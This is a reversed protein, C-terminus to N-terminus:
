LVARLRGELQDLEGDGLSQWWGAGGNQGGWQGYDSTYARDLDVQGSGLAVGNRYQHLHAHVSRLGGSWAYTQWNYRGAQISANAEIVDYEGYPGTWRYGHVSAGGQVYGLVTPLQGARLQARLVATREGERGLQALAEPHGEAARAPMDQLRARLERHGLTLGGTGAVALVDFDVAMYIPVARPAGLDWAQERWSTMDTKGQGFGGLARSASIEGVLVVGLGAAQLDRAEAAKLNKAHGPTSIYRCAFRKGAFKLQAVTPPSYSYDVGELVAM